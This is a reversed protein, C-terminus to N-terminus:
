APMGLHRRRVEVAREPRFDALRWSVVNRAKAEFPGSEAKLDLFRAHQLDREIASILIV